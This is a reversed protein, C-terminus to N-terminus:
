AKSLKLEQLRIEMATTSVDFLGALANLDGTLNTHGVRVLEKPMLLHTAFIDAEREFPERERANRAYKLRTKHMIWHGLEHACTFNFHGSSKCRTSIVVTDKDPLLAGDVDEGLETLDEIVFWLDYLREGILQAKIPPIADGRYRKMYEELVEKAQQACLFRTVQPSNRRRSM